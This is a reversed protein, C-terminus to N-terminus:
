ARHVLLSCFLCIDRGRLDRCVTSLFHVMVFCIIIDNGLLHHYTSQLFIFCSLLDPRAPPLQTHSFAEHLFHCKLVGQLFHPLSGHPWPLLAKWASPVALAFARLCLSAQRTVPVALLGLTLSTLSSLIDPSQLTLQTVPAM